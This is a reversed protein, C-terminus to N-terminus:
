KKKKRSRQMLSSRSLLFGPVIHLLVENVTDPVVEVEDQAHGWKVGLEGDSGPLTMFILEAENRGTDSISGSGCGFDHM